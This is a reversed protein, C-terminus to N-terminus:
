ASPMGGVASRRSARTSARRRAGPAPREGRPARGPRSASWRRSWGSGGSRRSAPGGPPGPAAGASCSPRSTALSPRSKSIAGISASRASCSRPFRTACTACVDRWATRVSRGRRESYSGSQKTKNERSFLHHLSHAIRFDRAACRYDGVNIKVVITAKLSTGSSQVTQASLLRCKM